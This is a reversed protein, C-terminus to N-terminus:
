VHSLPQEGPIKGSGIDTPDPGQFLRHKILQQKCRGFNTPLEIFTLCPLLFHQHPWVRLYRCM